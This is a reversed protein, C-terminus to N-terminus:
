ANSLCLIAPAPAMFLKSKALDAVHYRRMHQVRIVNKIVYLLSFGLVWVRWVVVSPTSLLLNQITKEAFSTEPQPLSPGPRAQLAGFARSMPLSYM